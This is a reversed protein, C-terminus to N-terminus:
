GNATHAFIHEGRSLVRIEHVNTGLRPRYGELNAEVFDGSQLHIVPCNTECDGPKAQGNPRIPWIPKASLYSPPLRSFFSLLRLASAVLM